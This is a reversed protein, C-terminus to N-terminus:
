GKGMMLLLMIQIKLSPFKFNFTILLKSLPVCSISQMVITQASNQRGVKGHEKELSKMGQRESVGRRFSVSTRNTLRWIPHIQKKFDVDPQVQIM